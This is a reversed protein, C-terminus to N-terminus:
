KTKSLIALEESTPARKFGKSGPLADTFRVRQLAGPPANPHVSSVYEKVRKPSIDIVSGDPRTQRIATEGSRTTRTVTTAARETVTSDITAKRKGANTLASQSAPLKSKALLNAEQARQSLKLNIQRSQDLFKQYAIRDAAGKSASQIYKWQTKSVSQRRVKSLTNLGTQASVASVSGFSVRATQRSVVQAAAVERRLTPSLGTPQFPRALQIATTSSPFTQLVAQNPPNIKKFAQYAQAYTEGSASCAMIIAVAMRLTPLSFFRRNKM